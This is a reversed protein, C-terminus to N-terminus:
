TIDDDTGNKIAASRRRRHHWKLVASVAFASGTEVMWVVSYRDSECATRESKHYGCTQYLGRLDDGVRIM